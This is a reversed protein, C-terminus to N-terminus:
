SATRLFAGKGHSPYHDGHRLWGASCDDAMIEVYGAFTSRASGKQVTVAL